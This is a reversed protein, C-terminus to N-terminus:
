KEHKKSRQEEEVLHELSTDGAIKPHHLHIAGEIRGTPIGNNTIVLDFEHPKGAIYAAYIEGMSVSVSGIRDSEGLNSDMCSILVHCEAFAEAPMELPLHLKAFLVEDTWDPNPDDNKAKTRPTEKKGLAMQKVAKAMKKMLGAHKKAVKHKTLYGEDSFYFKLYPDPIDLAQNKDRAIGHGKLKTFAMMMADEPEGGGKRPDEPTRTPHRTGRISFGCRVPKHDSTAFAMTTSYDIVTIRETFGPQTTWLVRDCWSPIRKTIYELSPKRQVKFTPKFTPKLTHWGHLMKGNLTVASQAPDALGAAGKMLEDGSWLLCFAASRVAQDASGLQDVLEAVRAWEQKWDGALGPEVLKMNIRYNMDGMWFAYDVKSGLDFQMQNVEAHEMIERVSNNRRKLHEGGEHAALHSSVFCISTCSEHEGAGKIVNLKIVQGGKNNYRVRGAGLGTNVESKMISYEPVQVRAHAYVILRMQGQRIKKVRRYELGLHSQVVAYVHESCTDVKLGSRHLVGHPSKRGSSPPKNGPNGPKGKLSGDPSLSAPPRDETPNTAGLDLSNSSGGPTSSGGGGDGGGGDGEGGTESVPYLMAEIYDHTELREGRIVADAEEEELRRIKAINAKEEDTTAFTAEQMGVAIIDYTMGDGGGKATPLVGKQPLWDDLTDFSANGINASGCLVTLHTQERAGLGAAMTSPAAM